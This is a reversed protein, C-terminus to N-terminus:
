TAPVLVGFLTRLHSHTTLQRQFHSVLCTLVGPRLKELLISITQHFANHRVMGRLPMIAMSGPVSGSDSLAPPLSLFANRQPHLLTVLRQLM